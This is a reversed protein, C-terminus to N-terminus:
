GEKGVQEFVAGCFVDHHHQVVLRVCVGDLIKDMLDQWLVAVEHYVDSVVALDGAPHKRFLICAYNSKM